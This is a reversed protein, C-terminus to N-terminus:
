FGSTASKGQPTILRISAWGKATLRELAAVYAKNPDRDSKPKGQQSDKDAARMFNGMNGVLVAGIAHIAAHRDLGESM